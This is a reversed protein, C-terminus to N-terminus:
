RKLHDRINDFSVALEQSLRLQGANLVPISDLRGFVLRSVEDCREVKLWMWESESTCEDSLEIKVYDGAEYVAM